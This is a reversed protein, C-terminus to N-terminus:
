LNQADFESLRALSQASLADRLPAHACAMTAVAWATNSCHQPSFSEMRSVLEDALMAPIVGGCVRGTDPTKALRHLATVYNV